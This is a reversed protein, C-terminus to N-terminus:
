IDTEDNTKLEVARVVLDRRRDFGCVGFVFDAKQIEVELTNGNEHWSIGVPKPELRLPARVFQFDDKAWRKIANGRRVAYGAEIRVRIPFKDLPSDGAVLKFGDDVKRIDFRRPQREVVVIPLDSHNDPESPKPKRSTEHDGEDTPLFFLDLLLKPDGKKEAAHLRQVIEYVSRTVFKITDAGYFYRNHFKPSDKQWQTHNVGEADGLLGALPRDDVVVLSRSGTLVPSRVDTIVIGDRLFITRHGQDRCPTFFVHFRSLQEGGAETNKPRVRVPIEIAVRQDAALRKQVEALLSESLLADGAMRWDPRAAAGSPLKVFQDPHVFAAWAAFEVVAAEGPPLLTRHQTVTEQNLQWTGDATELDVKLEGQLIPWFFNRVIGRRLDDANVREDVWPVVLSLGKESGRRLDFARVYRDIFAADSVPLVPQNPQEKLGFWGDPDYDEGAIVRSRIVASGMLVRKPEDTRVTLGLMAHIASATPFVQKGIGWRGLSDGSKSSRGEARFFSWFGNGASAELRWAAVDGNLGTTGFDEFLLYGPDSSFASKRSGTEIGADFHEKAESFLEILMAKAEGTARPILGIRVRVERVGASDRHAADLSNQISERVLAESLNELSEATFFADNASDRMREDPHRLRFHWSPNM